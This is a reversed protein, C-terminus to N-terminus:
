PLWRARISHRGIRLLLRAGHLAMRTPARGSPEISGWRAESTKDVSPASLALEELPVLPRDRSWGPLVPRLRPKGDARTSYALIGVDIKPRGDTAEGAFQLLEDVVRAAVRMAAAIKTAVPGAFVTDRMSDSAQVLCVVCGTTTGTEVSPM